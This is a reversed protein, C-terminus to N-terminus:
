TDLVNKEIVCFGCFASAADSFRRSDEAALLLCCCIGGRCREVVTRGSIDGKSPRM